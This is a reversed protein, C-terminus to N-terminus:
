RVEVARVCEEMTKRIVRERFAPDKRFTKAQDCSLRALRAQSCRCLQEAQASGVVGSAVARHFNKACARLMETKVKETVVGCAPRRPDLAPKEGFAPSVFAVILILSCFLRSM